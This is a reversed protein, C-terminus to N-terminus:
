AIECGLELEESGCKRCVMCGDTSMTGRAKGVPIPPMPIVRMTNDITGCNKCRVTMIFM